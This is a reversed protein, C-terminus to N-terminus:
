QSEDDCFFHDSGRRCTRRPRAGLRAGRHTFTHGTKLTFDPCIPRCFFSGLMRAV